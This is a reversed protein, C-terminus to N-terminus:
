LSAAFVSSQRLVRQKRALQYAVLGAAFLLMLALDLATMADSDSRAGRVASAASVSEGLQGFTATRLEICHGSACRDSNWSPIKEFGSSSVPSVGHGNASTSASLLDGALTEGRQAETFVTATDSITAASRVTAHAMPMMLMGLFIVFLSRTSMPSGECYDPRCLRTYLLMLRALRQTLDVRLFFRPFVSIQTTFRRSPDKCIAPTRVISLCYFFNRVFV